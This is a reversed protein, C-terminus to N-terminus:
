ETELDYGVVPQQILRLLKSFSTLVLDDATWTGVVPQLATSTGKPSLQDEAASPRSWTAHVQPPAPGLEKAFRLEIEEARTDSNKRGVVLDLM